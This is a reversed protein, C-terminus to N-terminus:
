RAKALRGGIKDFIAGNFLNGDALWSSIDQPDIAMKGVIALVLNNLSQMFVDNDRGPQGPNPM